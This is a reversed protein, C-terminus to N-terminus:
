SAPTDVYSIGPASIIKQAGEAGFEKKLLDMTEWMDRIYDILHATEKTNGRLHPLLDLIASREPKEPLTVLTEAIMAVAQEEGLLENLQKQGEGIKELRATIFDHRSVGYALGTLGWLASKYENAISERLQAVESVAMFRTRGKCRVTLDRDAFEIM